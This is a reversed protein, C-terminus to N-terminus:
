KLYELTKDYLKIARRVYYPPHQRENNQFGWEEDEMMQKKDKQVMKRCISKSHPKLTKCLSELAIEHHKLPDGREILDMRCDELANFFVNIAPDERNTIKAPPIEEKKPPAPIEELMKLNNQFQQVLSSEDVKLGNSIMRCVFGKTGYWSHNMKKFDDLHEKLTPHNSLWKLAWKKSQSSDFYRKYWELNEAIITNIKSYDIEGQDILNFVPEKVNKKAM